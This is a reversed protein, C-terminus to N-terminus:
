LEGEEFKFGCLAECCSRKRDSFIEYADFIKGCIKHRRTTKYLYWRKGYADITRLLESRVEETECFLWNDPYDNNGCKAQDSLLWSKWIYYDQLGYEGAVSKELDRALKWCADDINHVEM